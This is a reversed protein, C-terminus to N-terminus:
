AGAGAHLGSALERVFREGVEVADAGQEHADRWRRVLASGVIAADAHEVVARVHEATAIGFGCAIPRDTSERLERVRPGIEPAQDREGTIGSRALMYVFGTSASAIERAREPPTSPSVLLSLSLGHARAADILAASEELPCDPIILGDFGAEHARQCFAQPGGMASVISVSVMAVIGISLGQRAAAVEDFVGAPSCGSELAAHMASAIAPGDAIPDSFPIGVEVIGAGAREMAGLLAGLSGPIPSGACVFPMLLKRNEDRALAFIDDIRGM